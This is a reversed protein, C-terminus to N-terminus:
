ASVEKWQLVTQDEQHRLEDIKALLERAKRIKEQTLNIIDVIDKYEEIKVFVPTEAM